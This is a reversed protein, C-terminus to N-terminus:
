RVFIAVVLMVPLRWGAAFAVTVGLVDSCGGGGVILKVRVLDGSM